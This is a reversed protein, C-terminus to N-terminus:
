VERWASGTFYGMATGDKPAIEGLYNAGIMGGAGDMNQVIIGPQGAIHKSLHKAFIRGEIDTPGGAAFNIIVTIRKGKYYPEEAHASSLLLRPSYGSSPM